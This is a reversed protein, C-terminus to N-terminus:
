RRRFGAYIFDQTTGFPTHHQEAEQTVLEFDSGMRASLTEASYRQVPLGSCKEPGTLAFTSLIATSGPRTAQKLAAIYSDQAAHDILFHFVARDHWVDWTRSPKWQSINAVIWRVKSAAEGLRDRTRGLAIESIDLLTVDTYGATLLSDALRSAGAGIDIISANHMPAASRILELSRSSPPQYWSVNDGKSSYTDNWHTQDDTM